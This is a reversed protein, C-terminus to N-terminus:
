DITHICLVNGGNKKAEKMLQGTRLSLSWAYFRYTGDEAQSSTWYQWTDFSDAADSQVNNIASVVQSLKTYNNYIACLEALSPIFWGSAYAGTLGATTGYTNAYYFAPYNTEANAEASSDATCIKEWNDNGSEDGSMTQIDSVYYTNMATYSFDETITCLIDDFKTNYGTTTDLAWIKSTNQKLGMVNKPAGNNLECVIGVTNQIQKATFPVNADYAVYSGDNLLLDGVALTNWKAYLTMNATVPTTFNFLTTFGSDTYWGAFSNGAKTPVAPETLKQEDYVYQADVRSGGNSNFIVTYDKETRVVCVYCPDSKSNKGIFDNNFTIYFALGDYESDQSSSWYYESDTKLLDASTSLATLVNNIITKNQSIYVLEAVSPIYWGTAYIGSLGAQSAYNNVYNFAPYNTEVNATSTGENDAFCINAWNDAGYLEGTLYKYGGYIYMCYDVGASPEESSQTIQINQFNTSKGTSGDAAWTYTEESNKLGIIGRPVDNSDLAYVVGVPVKGGSLETTFSTREADYAIYTGDNLLLDGVNIKTFKAYFNQDVKTNQPISTIPGNTFFSDSYWGNFSYGEKAIKPLIVENKSTFNLPALDYFTGGNTDYTIRYIDSLAINWEADTSLGNVVNVFAAVPSNVSVFGNTADGAFFEFELYYTAEPIKPTGSDKLSDKTYVFKRMDTGASEFTTITDTTHTTAKDESKLKAVVKTIQSGNPNEKDNFTVTININNLSSNTTQLIFSINTTSGATLTVNSKNCKFSVGNLDATLTFAWTGPALSIPTGKIDALTKGSGGALTVKTAGGQAGKLEVNTLLLKNAEVDPNLEKIARFSDDDVDVYIYCKESNGSNSYSQKLENSCSTIGLLALVTGLLVTTKVLKKMNTYKM